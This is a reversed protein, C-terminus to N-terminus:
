QFIPFPFNIKSGYEGGIVRFYEFKPRHLKPRGFKLFNELWLPHCQHIVLIMHVPIKPFLFNLFDVGRIWCILKSFRFFALNWGFVSIPISLNYLLLSRTHSTTAPTKRASFNSFRGYFNSVVFSLLLVLFQDNILLVLTSLATNGYLYEIRQTSRCVMFQQGGFHIIM